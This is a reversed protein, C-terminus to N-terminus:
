TLISKYYETEDDDGRSTNKKRASADAVRGIRPRRVYTRGSPSICLVRPARRGTVPNIKCLSSLWKATAVRCHQRRRLYFWSEIADRPLM